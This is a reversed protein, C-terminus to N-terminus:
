STWLAPRNWPAPVVLVGGLDPGDKGLSISQWAARWEEPLPYPPRMGVAPEFGFRGYYAPDGLVLVLMAGSAEMHELGAHVLASGIGQGQMGPCVALPGLLAVKEARGHVGCTTFAVHGALGQEDVAVLQLVGDALVTLDRLLPILDEDPFAQRYLRELAPM